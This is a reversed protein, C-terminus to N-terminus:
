PVATTRSGYARHHSLPRPSVGSGVRNNFVCILMERKPLKKTTNLPHALFSTNSISLFLPPLAHSDFGGVKIQQRLRGEFFKHTGGMHVKRSFILLFVCFYYVIRLAQNQCDRYNETNEASVLIGLFWATLRERRYGSCVRHGSVFFRWLRTLPKNVTQQRNLICNLVQFSQRLSYSEFGRGSSSTKKNSDFLFTPKIYPSFICIITFV